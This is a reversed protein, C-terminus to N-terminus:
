GRRTRLGVSLFILAFIFLPVVDGFWSAIPEGGVWADYIHNFSHILSAFVAVGILLRNRSPNQSALILGIGLPALFSGLDGMYHRNFPPYRGINDFFWEPQLLLSMGAMLYLIGAVLVILTVYPLRLMREGTGAENRRNRIRRRM